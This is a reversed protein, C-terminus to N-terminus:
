VKTAGSYEPKHSDAEPATKSRAIEQYLDFQELGPFNHECGLCWGTGKNACSDCKKM